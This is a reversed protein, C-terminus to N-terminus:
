LVGHRGMKTLYEVVALLLLASGKNGKDSGTVGLGLIGDIDQEGQLLSAGVNDLESNWESIGQSVAGGNLLGALNGDGVININRHAQVHDPFGSGLTELSGDDEHSVEVRNAAVAFLANNLVALLSTDVSENNDLERGLLTSLEAAVACL